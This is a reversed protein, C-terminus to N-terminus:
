PGRVGPISGKTYSIVRSDGSVTLWNARHAASMLTTATGSLGARQGATEANLNKQIYELTSLPVGQGRLAALADDPSQAELVLPRLVSYFASSIDLFLVAASM